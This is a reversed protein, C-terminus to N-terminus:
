AVQEQGLTMLMDIIELFSGDSIYERGAITRIIRAEIKTVEPRDGYHEPENISEREHPEVAEIADVQILHEGDFLFDTM